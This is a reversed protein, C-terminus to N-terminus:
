QSSLHYIVRLSTSKVQTEMWNIDGALPFQYHPVRGVKLRTKTEMWNIDGALPFEFVIITIDKIVKAITEM